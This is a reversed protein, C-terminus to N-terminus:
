RPEMCWNLVLAALTRKSHLTFLLYSWSSPMAETHCPVTHWLCLRWKGTCGNGWDILAHTTRRPVSIIHVHSFCADPPTSGTQAHINQVKSQQCQQSSCPSCGHQHQGCMSPPSSDNHSESTPSTCLIWATLVQAQFNSLVYPRPTSTSVNCLSHHNHCYDTDRPHLIIHHHQNTALHGEETGWGFGPLGCRTFSAGSSPWTGVKIPTQCHHYCRQHELHWNNFQTILDLYRDTQLSQQRSSHTLAFILPKHDIGIHFQRGEVFHQFHQVAKYFAKLECDYTSYNEQGPTLEQLLLSHSEM